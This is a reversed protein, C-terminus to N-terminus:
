SATHGRSATFVKRHLGMILSCNREQLRSVARMSHVDHAAALFAIRIHAPINEPLCSLESSKYREYAPLFCEVEAARKYPRTGPPIDRLARLFHTGTAADFGRECSAKGGEGSNKGAEGHNAFDLYPVLGTGGAGDESVGRSLIVGLARLFDRTSAASPSVPPM